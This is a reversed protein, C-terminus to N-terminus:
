RVLIPLYVSPLLPNPSEGPAVVVDVPITGLDRGDVTFRAGAGYGPDASSASLAIGPSGALAAQGGDGTTFVKVEQPTMASADPPFVLRLPTFYGMGLNIRRDTPSLTVEVRAQPVTRLAVRLTDPKGDQRIVTSGDTQTIRVESLDNDGLTVIAIPFVLTDGPVLGRLTLVISKSPEGRTDDVIGLEIRREREGRAFALTGTATVVGAPASKIWYDGEGAAAGFTATGGFSYGVRSAGAPNGRAVTFVVPTGGGENTGATSTSLSYSNRPSYLRAVIAPDYCGQAIVIGLPEPCDVRRDAEWVIVFSGFPSTAIDAYEGALRYFEAVREEPTDLPAGAAFRRFVVDNDDGADSAGYTAWAFIPGDALYDVRPAEFEMGRIRFTDSVNFQEGDLAGAPTFRQAVVHRLVEDNWSVVFGGSADMAVAPRSQGSSTQNNLPAGGRLGTLQNSAATYLAGYIDEDQEWVVVFDGDEDLAVAPASVLGSTVFRNGGPLAAGNADYRQFFISTPDTTSSSQSAWAVVFNGDADMAVSPDYQRNTTFSNALLTPTLRAGENDYRQLFVGGSYDGEGTGEWAVVFDGDSDAAVDPRGNGITVSTSVPEAIGIADGAADYRRIYVYDPFSYGQAWAVVFEGQDDMTVSPRVDARNPPSVQQEEGPVQAALPAVALALALAPALSRRLLRRLRTSRWAAALRALRAALRLAALAAHLDALKRVRM